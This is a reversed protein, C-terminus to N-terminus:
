IRFYFMGIVPKYSSNEGVFLSAVRYCTECFTSKHLFMCYLVSTNGKHKINYNLTTYYVMLTITINNLQCNHCLLLSIDRM